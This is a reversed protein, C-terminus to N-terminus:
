KTPAPAAVKQIFEGEIVIQVDDGVAGPPFAVGFDSRKIAGTASFGIAAAPVFPHPNKSGNFTVDLTVPKTVGLFTLDGTVKGTKEGTTEVSTSTFTITPFKGANFFKDSKALDEDWSKFGTQAHSKKYDGPYDTKVSTPDITAVVKSASLNAPDFTITADWKAFRATYNSLGMHSVKWTLSGHTLDLGYDGAPVDVTIPAAPAPAAPAEKPAPPSCAIATMALAAAGIMMKM